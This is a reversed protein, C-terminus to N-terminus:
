SIHYDFHSNEATTNSRSIAAQGDGIRYNGRTCNFYNQKEYDKRRNREPHKSLCRNAACGFFRYGGILSSRQVDGNAPSARLAFL